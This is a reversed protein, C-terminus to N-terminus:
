CHKWQLETLSPIKIDESKQKADDNKIDGAMGEQQGEWINESAKRRGKNKRKANLNKLNWRENGSIYWSLEENEVLYYKEMRIAM